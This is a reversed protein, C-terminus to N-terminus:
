EASHHKLSLADLGVDKRPLVLIAIPGVKNSAEACIINRGAARRQIAQRFANSFDVNDELSYTNGFHCKAYDGSECRIANQNQVAYGSLPAGDRGIEAAPHSVDNQFVLDNESRDVCAARVVFVRDPAKFLEHDEKRLGYKRQNISHPDIIRRVHERAAAADFIHDREIQLPPRHGGPEPRIFLGATM